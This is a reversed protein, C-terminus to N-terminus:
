EQLVHPIPQSVPTHEGPIHVRFDETRKLANSGTHCLNNM